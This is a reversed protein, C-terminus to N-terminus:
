MKVKEKKEKLKELYENQANLYTSMSRKLGEENTMAINPQFTYDTEFMEDHKDRLQEIKVAKKELAKNVKEEIAEGSILKLKNLEMKLRNEDRVLVDLIEEGNNYLKALKKKVATNFDSIFEPDWKSPFIFKARSNAYKDNNINNSLYSQKHMGKFVKKKIKPEKEIHEYNLLTSLIEGKSCQDINLNLLVNDSTVPIHDSQYQEGEQDNIIQVDDSNDSEVDSELDEEDSEELDKSSRGLDSDEELEEVSQIEEGSGESNKFLNKNM